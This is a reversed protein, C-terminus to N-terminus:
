KATDGAVPKTDKWAWLYRCAYTRYPSWKASIEMLRQRLAKKDTADLRYLKIMTQQLGLDDLAFVDERGLYFMLLMEVTWRGVGKIQTLYALIEDNNMKQLKKDTLKEEVTFRAVNHVYSVKANSLGIARLTPAPTDLVQQPTPEKGGYIALFRAYIVDAVKVSLQQSMISAILRLTINKSVPMAGLPATIIASLKKDKILHQHHLAIGDQSAAPASLKKASTKAM